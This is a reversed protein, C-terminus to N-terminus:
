PVMVIDGSHVYFNQQGGSGALAASYDFPFRDEKGEDRRLVVIRSPSAFENLGGAEAIADLVTAPGKFEYHGPKKVQGLVSVAYSHVETVVVSVEPTSLYQKLKAMLTERLQLPTLGSAPVDNLLPFSIMGDPRVPVTRNLSDDKWVTIQLVDGPGIRYDGANSGCASGKCVPDAPANTAMQACGVMTLIATAIVGMRSDHLTLYM